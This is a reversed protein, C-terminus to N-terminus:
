GTVTVAALSPRDIRFAPTAEGGEVLDAALEGLAPSFKFAHGSCGTAVVVSGVRDLIFDRDPTMTWPCRETRVPQAALGPYATAVRRALALAEAHDPRRDQDEPDFPVAADAGFKYGVGAIPLGYVGGQQDSEWEIVCPRDDWGEGRFFTAQALEPALPLHLGLGHTLPGTWPGAALVAVDADIRRRDTKVVAHDGGAEIEVASEPCSIDAGARAALDAQIVLGDRARLVGAAPQWRIPVGPRPAAGPFWRGIDAGDAEEVTVREARLAEMITEHPGGIEVLGVGRLLAAGDRRELERWLVLARRALAIYDRRHYSLRFIRAGHASSALENAVGYRDIATVDHGRQALVRATAIGMAGLGVVCVRM